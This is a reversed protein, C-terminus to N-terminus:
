GIELTSPSISLERNTRETNLELDLNCILYYELKKLSNKYTNPSNKYSSGFNFSIKLTYCVPSVHFLFSIFYLVYKNTLLKLIVTPIKMKLKM